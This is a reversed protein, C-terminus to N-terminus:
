VIYQCTASFDIDSGYDGMKIDRGEMAKWDLSWCKEPGVSLVETGVQVQFRSNMTAERCVDSHM